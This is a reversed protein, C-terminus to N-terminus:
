SLTDVIYPESWPNVGNIVSGGSCNIIKLPIERKIALAAFVWPTDDYAAQQNFNNLREPIDQTYVRGNPNPRGEIAPFGEPEILYYPNPPSVPCVVMEGTGMMDIMENGLDEMGHIYRHKQGVGVMIYPVPKGDAYLQAQTNVSFFSENEGPKTLYWQESTDHAQLGHIVLRMWDNSGTAIEETSGIIIHKM